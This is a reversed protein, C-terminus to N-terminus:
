ENPLLTNVFDWNVVNWWNEIYEPRRNQYNLYYAHEWVDLPLLPIGESLPNGENSYQKIELKGSTNLFLWVWGSGFLTQAKETYAKKFTELDGFTNGLLELIKGTPEIKNPTLTKWFINHNYTQNGNNKVANRIDEPINNIDKLLEELTQHTLEPHKELADNLKTIYGAHHKSHHLEMTQSDIYPQLADYSYDLQPLELKM